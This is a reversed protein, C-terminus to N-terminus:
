AAALMLDLVRETAARGDTIGSLAAGAEHLHKLCYADRIADAIIGGHDFDCVARMLAWVADHAYKEPGTMEMGDLDHFTATSVLFSVAGDHDLRAWAKDVIHERKGKLTDLLAKTLAAIGAKKLEALGPVGLARLLPLLFPIM